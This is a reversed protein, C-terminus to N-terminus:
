HAQDHGEQADHGEGVDPVERYVKGSIARVGPQGDDATFVEFPDVEELRVERLCGMGILRSVVSPVNATEDHWEYLVRESENM